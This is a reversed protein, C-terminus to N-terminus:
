QRVVDVSYLNITLGSLLRVMQAPEVQGTRKNFYFGAECASSNMPKMCFPKRWRDQNPSQKPSQQPMHPPATVSANCPKTVPSPCCSLLYETPCCSALPKDFVDGCKAASVVRLKLVLIFWTLICTRLRRHEDVM